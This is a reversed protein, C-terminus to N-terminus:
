LGNDCAARHAQQAGREAALGCRPSHCSGGPQGPRAAGQPRPRPSRCAAHNPLRLGAPTSAFLEDTPKFLDGNGPRGLSLGPEAEQVVPAREM